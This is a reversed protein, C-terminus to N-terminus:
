NENRDLEQYHKIVIVELEDIKAKWRKQTEILELFLESPFDSGDVYAMGLTEDRNVEEVDPYEVDYVLLPFPLYLQMEKIQKEDREELIEKINEYLPKVFEPEALKIGWEVRNMIEEKTGFVAISNLIDLEEQSFISLESPKRYVM